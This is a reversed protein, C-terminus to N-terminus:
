VGNLICARNRHRARDRTWHERCSRSVLSRRLERLYGRGMSAMRRARTQQCSVGLAWESDRDSRRLHGLSKVFDGQGTLHGNSTKNM